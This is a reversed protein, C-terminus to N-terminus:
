YCYFKFKFDICAAEVVIGRAPVVQAKESSHQRTKRGVNKTEDLAPIVFFTPCFISLSHGNVTYCSVVSEKFENTTRVQMMQRKDEGRDERKKM